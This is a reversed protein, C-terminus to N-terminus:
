KGLKIDIALMLYSIAFYKNIGAQLNIPRIEFILKSNKPAVRLGLSIGGGFYLHHFYKAIDVKDDPDHGILGRSYNIFISPSTVLSLSKYKILDYHLNLNLNTIRYFQKAVDTVSIPSFSGILLNPNLRIRNKEGYNKQYGILYIIGSGSEKIGKIHEFGIGTRISQKNNAVEEQSYLTLHILMLFAFLFISQRMKIM